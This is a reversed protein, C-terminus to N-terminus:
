KSEVTKVFAKGIEVWQEVTLSNLYMTMVSETEWINNPVDDYAFYWYGDGRVLEVKDCGIKKIIQRTNTAQTM